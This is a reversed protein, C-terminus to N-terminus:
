EVHQKLVQNKNESKPAESSNGESGGVFVEDVGFDVTVVDVDVVDANQLMDWQYTDLIYKINRRLGKKVETKEM